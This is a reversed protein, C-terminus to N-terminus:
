YGYSAIGKSQIGRAHAGLNPASGGVAATCLGGHTCGLGLGLGLGALKALLDLHAATLAASRFATVQTERLGQGEENKMRMSLNKKSANASPLRLCHVTAFGHSDQHLLHCIMPLVM